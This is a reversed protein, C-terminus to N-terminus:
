DIGQELDEEDADTEAIGTNNDVEVDAEVLGTYVVMFLVQPGM